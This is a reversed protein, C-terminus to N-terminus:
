DAYNDLYISLLVTEVSDSHREFITLLKRGGKLHLVCKGLKLSKSCYPRM